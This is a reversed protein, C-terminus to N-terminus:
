DDKKEPIYTNELDEDLGTEIQVVPRALQRMWSPREPPGPPFPIMAELLLVHMIAEHREDELSRVRRSLKNAKDEAAGAKTDAEDAKDGAEKARSEASSARREVAELSVKFGDVIAQFQHTDAEKESVGVGKDATQQQGKANKRQVIGNIIVGILILFPSSIFLIFVIFPTEKFLQILEPPM